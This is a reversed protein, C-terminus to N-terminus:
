ETREPGRTESVIRFLDEQIEDISREGDVRIVIGKEELFALSPETNQDYEQIRTVISEPTDDSRGSTKARGMIRETITQEGVELYLVQYPRELWEMVEFFHKAEPLTRSTGDFIIMDTEDLGLITRNVVYTAFWHPMLRGQALTSGTRRGLTSDEAAIRRFEDGTSFYRCGLKEVLLKAQTGKGSGPRGM